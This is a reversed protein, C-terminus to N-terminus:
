DTPAFTKDPDDGKGAIAVSVAGNETLCSAVDEANSRGAVMWEVGGAPAQGADSTNSFSKEKVGSQDGCAEDMLTPDDMKGTVIWSASSPRFSWFGVVAIMGGLAVMLVKARM